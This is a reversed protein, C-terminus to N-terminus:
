TKLWQSSNGGGVTAAERPRPAATTGNATPGGAYARVPGAVAVARQGARRSSRKRHRPRTQMAEGPDVAFPIRPLLWVEPAWARRQHHGPGLAGALPLREHCDLGGLTSVPAAAVVPEHRTM